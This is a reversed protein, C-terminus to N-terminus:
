SNKCNYISIKQNQSIKKWQVNIAEMKGYDKTLWDLDTHLVKMNNRTKFHFQNLENYVQQLAKAKKIAKEAEVSKTVLHKNEIQLKLLQTKM